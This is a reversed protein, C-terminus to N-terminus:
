AVDRECDLSRSLSLVLRNALWYAYARRFEDDECSHASAPFTAHRLLYVALVRAYEEASLTADSALRRVEQLCGLSWHEESRDFPPAGALITDLHYAQEVRSQWTVRDFATNEPWEFSLWVELSALDACMPGNTAHAFDIVIADDKRIRVNNAHLDGHIPSRLWARLPLNLLKRWLAVAGHLEGGFKRALEIRHSPVREHKCFASLPDVVSGHTQTDVPQRHQRLLALTETFLSHIHRSGRGERAVDWLSYSSEVLSGVLIGTDVGYLCRRPMFNPRLHWPVHHEAYQTFSLMEERLKDAKDLKVFFPQPTDGANSAALKAHAYFTLAGSLGGSLPALGIWRCDSFARQLMLFHNPTLGSQAPAEIVLEPNAAAGVKHMLAKQPAEHAPVAGLRVQYNGNDWGSRHANELLRNVEALQGRTEVVVYVLLGHDVAARYHVELADIAAEFHPFTAWFIAARAQSFDPLAGPVVEEILLDRNSAEARHSETPPRAFWLLKTRSKM